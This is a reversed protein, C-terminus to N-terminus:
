KEGIDELLDDLDILNSPDKKPEPKKETKKKPESLTDPIDGLIKALGGRPDVQEKDLMAEYEEVGKLAGRLIYKLLTTTM